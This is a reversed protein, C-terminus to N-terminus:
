KGGVRQANTLNDTAYSFDDSDVDGDGDGDVIAGLREPGTATPEGMGLIEDPGCSVILPKYYTNYTHYASEFDPCTRTGSSFSLSYGAGFYRSGTFPMKRLSGRPDFPDQNFTQSFDPTGDSRATPIRPLNTILSDAAAYSSASPVQDQGASLDVGAPRILRTPANYFRLPKGWDDLFEPIGDNDTDQLHRPNIDSLVEKGAGSSAGSTLALYLLESSETDPRHPGPGTAAQTWLLLLPSNDDTTSVNQDVGYLDLLRQPFTGGYHDIRILAKAAELPLPSPTNGGADYATKLAAANNTINFWASNNSSNVTIWAAATGKRAVQRDFEQRVENLRAQLLSDLKRITTLTAIRKASEGTKGLMVFAMSCLIGIIAMVVLLEILTLGARSNSTRRHALRSQM